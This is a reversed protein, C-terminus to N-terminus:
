SRFFILDNEDSTNIERMRFSENEDSPSRRDNEDSTNIERMRFSEKEDSPSRRDNEDSTNIEKMRFAENADSPSRRFDESSLDIMRLRNEGPVLKSGSLVQGCIGLAVSVSIYLLARM